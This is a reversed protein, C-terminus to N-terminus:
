NRSSPKEPTAEKIDEPIYMMLVITADENAYDIGQFHVAPNDMNGHQPRLCSSSKLEVVLTPVADDPEVDLKSDFGLDDEARFIHVDKSYEVGPVCVVNSGQLALVVFDRSLRDADQAGGGLEMGAQLHDAHEERVAAAEDAYVQRRQVKAAKQEEKLKKADDEAEAVTDRTTGYTMKGDISMASPAVVADVECMTENALRNCLSFAMM